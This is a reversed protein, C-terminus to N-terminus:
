TEGKFRVIDAFAEIAPWHIKEKGSTELWAALFLAIWWEMDAQCYHFQVVGKYPTYVCFNHTDRPNAFSPENREGVCFFRDKEGEFDSHHHAKRTCYKCTPHVLLVDDQAALKMLEQSLPDTILAMKRLVDKVEDEDLEKLLKVILPVQSGESSDDVSM